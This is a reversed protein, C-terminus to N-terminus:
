SPRLELCVDDRKLPDGGSTVFLPPKMEAIGDILRKAEDTSLEFPNRAPQANARCHVCALNSVNVPVTATTRGYQTTATLVYSARVTPSFTISNGRVPGVVPSIYLYSAGSVNWSLTVPSGSSVNSASASLSNITPAAGRPVSTSNYVTGM